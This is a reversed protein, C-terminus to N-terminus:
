LGTDKRLRSLAKRQAEPSLPKASTQQLAAQEPISLVEGRLAAACYSAYHSKFIPWSVQESSNSLLFWDSDRGALYVAPHSWTQASKPSAANCAEIYAARPEPLGFELLGSQCCELMRNLTPLYESQEIAYRAGHLIQEVPLSSLADLWLRKVQNLQEDQPYAAYFQNHYNLRFLAFIQNIAEVHAM